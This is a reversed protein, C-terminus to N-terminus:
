FIQKYLSYLNALLAIIIALLFVGCLKETGEKMRSNSNRVYLMYIETVLFSLVALVLLNTITNIM